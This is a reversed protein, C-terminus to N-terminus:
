AQVYSLPHPAGELSREPPLFYIVRPVFLYDPAGLDNPRENTDGDSKAGTRQRLSSCADGGRRWPLRTKVQSDSLCISKPTADKTADHLAVVPIAM